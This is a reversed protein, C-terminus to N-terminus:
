GNLGGTHKTDLIYIAKELECIFKDDREAAAPDRNIWHNRHKTTSRIERKLVVITKKFNM